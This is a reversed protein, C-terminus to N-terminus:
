TTELIIHGDVIKVRKVTKGDVYVPVELFNKKITGADAKHALQQWAKFIEQHIDYADM